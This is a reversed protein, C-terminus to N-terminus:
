PTYGTALRPFDEGHRVIWVSLVTARGKRTTLEFRLEYLEGFGHDGQAVANESSACAELLADGLVEANALTIGLASQFVRAKHKGERHTPHLADDEIKASREARDGNPIRM